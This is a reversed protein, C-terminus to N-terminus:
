INDDNIKTLILFMKKTNFIGKNIDFLLKIQIM